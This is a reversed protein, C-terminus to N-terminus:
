TLDNVSRDAAEHDYECLKVSVARGTGRERGSVEECRREYGVARM